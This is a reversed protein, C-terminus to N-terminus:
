PRQSLDLCPIRWNSQADCWFCHPIYWCHGFGLDDSLILGGNDSLLTALGKDNNFLRQAHRL